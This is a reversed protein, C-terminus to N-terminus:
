SFGQERARYDTVVSCVDWARVHLGPAGRGFGPRPGSEPAPPPTKFNRGFAEFPSFPVEKSSKKPEFNRKKLGKQPEFNMPVGKSNRM